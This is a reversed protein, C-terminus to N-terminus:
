THLGSVDKPVHKRRMFIILLLYIGPGQRIIETGQIPNQNEQICLLAIVGMLVTHGDAYM